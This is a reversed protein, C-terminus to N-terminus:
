LKCFLSSASDVKRSNRVADTNFVIARNMSM